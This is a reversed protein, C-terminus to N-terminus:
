VPFSKLSAIIAAPHDAHRYHKNNELNVPRGASIFRSGPSLDPLCEIFRGIENDRFNQPLYTIICHPEEKRCIANLEAISFYNGLYITSYGERRVLYHLYLLPLESSSGPIFLLVTNKGAPASATNEIGLYIKQKICEVILYLQRRYHQKEPNQFLGVRDSFPLVVYQITDHVGWNAVYENLKGNFGTIDMMLMSRMLEYVAREYKQPGNINGIIKSREESSMKAIREMKYGNQKLLCFELFYVVQETTYMRRSAETRQPHQFLFRQEWIRITHPKIGSFGALHKITFYTYGNSPVSPAAVLAERGNEVIQDM